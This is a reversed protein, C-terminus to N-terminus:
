RNINRRRARSLLFIIILVLLIIGGAILLIIQTSPGSQPASEAQAPILTPTVTPTPTDEQEETAPVETDVQAVAAETPTMTAAETATAEETAEATVEPTSEADLTAQADGTATAEADTTSQADATAQADTTAQAINAARISQETATAQAERTIEVAATATAQEFETVATAQANVTAVFDQTNRANVTSQAETAVQEATVTAEAIATMAEETAASETAESDVTAQADSTAQMNNTAEAVATMAEETAAASETAQTDTTAQADTTAQEAIATMAEETAAAANETALVNLTAQANATARADSTSQAATTAEAEGTVTSEVEGTETVSAIDTSAVQTATSEADSTAQADLQGQAEGTETVAILAEATSTSEAISQEGTAQADSTAQEVAAQEVATATLDLTPTSTPTGTDTATPTATPVSATATLSPGEAVIFPIEGTISQGGANEVTVTLFHDGPELSLIDLTLSAPDETQMVQGDLLYTIDTVPTQSDVDVEVTVDDEITEGVRLGTVTVQPPLAAVTFNIDQSSTQGIENTVTITLTTAGPLLNQAELVLSGPARGGNDVAEGNVAFTVDTVTAQSTLVDVSVETSDELTQGDELGTVTFTPPLDAVSFTSDTSATAGGANTVTLTLTHEGPTLAQPDLTFMPGTVDLATPSQDDIQYSIETADTQGGTIVSFTVPESIEEAPLEPVLEFTSPLAAVEFDFSDSGSDGESDTATVTLNHMGPTLAVPDLTYEYPAETLTATDQGDVSFVVGTLPDDARVDVSITMPADIVGEPGAIDVIPVPIPARLIADDSATGDPTTVELELTYETGDAPLNASIVIEYQTRLRTAFEEFISGLEDPSPSERFLANTGEGLEVLYTRDTGYGLGVTYVPVGRAAAEEAAAQRTARPTLSSTSYQAGDSLLIVARRPTPADAAKQIAVLAGEYLQTEGGPTLRDIAQLLVEKDTTYDQVVQANNSFAIIAIPDNPGISDIFARAAEKAREIPLDTMSSSTDIALVVGVALGDDTVSSVSVIQARDALEGRLQFNEQTLGSVPQGLRDLVVATVRVTPLETPNVGSIEITPGPQAQTAVFALPLVGIAIFIALLLKKM